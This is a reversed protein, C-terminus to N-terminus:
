PGLPHLWAQPDQGAPVLGQGSVEAYAATWRDASTVVRPSGWSAVYADLGAKVVAPDALSPVTYRSTIVKTTEAYGTPADAAVFDMADRIAALYRRLRDETAPDALQDAAAVFVQAGASVVSNPDLVVAEPRTHQLVTATDLPTMYADIRGATVLDFVGPALGVVERRVSAPDVGGRALVLNLTWESTGGQSPIGVTKGVLDAPTRVPARTSSAIRVPGLAQETGVVRLPAGRAGVAVMTEIDGLRTLVASGGLVAQLAAPSGQLAQYDVELGHRAFDGRATAVMEPAYSMSEIPATTVVTIREVAAAGTSGAPASCGVLVAIAALAATLLGTGRSM